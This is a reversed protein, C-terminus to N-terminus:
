FLARHTLQTQLSCSAQPLSLVSWWVPPHCRSVLPTPSAMTPDQGGGELVGQAGAPDHPYIGAKNKKKSITCSKIAGVKSFVQLLCAGTVLSGELAAV